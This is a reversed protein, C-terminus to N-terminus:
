RSSDDLRRVNSEIKEIYNSMLHDSIRRSIFSKLDNRLFDDAVQTVSLLKSLIRTLFHSDHDVIHGAANIQKLTGAHKYHMTRPVSFPAHCVPDAYYAFRYFPSTIQEALSRNGVRPQGFTYTELQEIGMRQIRLVALTALAGGLSHGTVWIKRPRCDLLSQLKAEIRPWVATLAQSFGRHVLAGHDEIQVVNLNILWDAVDDTGRFALVIANENSGIFGRAAESTWGAALEKRVPLRNDDPAFDVIEDFGFTQFGKDHLTGSDYCASAAHALFLANHLVHRGLLDISM